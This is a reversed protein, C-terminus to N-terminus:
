NYGIPYVNDIDEEWYSSDFLFAGDMNMISNRRTKYVSRYWLEGHLKYPKHQSIIKQWHEHQNNM